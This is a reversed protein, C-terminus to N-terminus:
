FGLEVTSVRFRADRVLEALLVPADDARQTNFVVHLPARRPAQGPAADLVNAAAATRALHEFLPNRFNDSVFALRGTVQTLFGLLVTLTEHDFNDIGEMDLLVLSRGDRLPVVAVDVGLTVPARGNNTVFVPLSAADIGPALIGRSVACPCLHALHALYRNRLVLLIHYWMDSERLSSLAANLTTSKGVRGFGIVSLIVLPTLARGLAALGEPIARLRFASVPRGRVAEFVARDGLNIIENTDADVIRLLPFVQHAM